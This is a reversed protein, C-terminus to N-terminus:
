EVPIDAAERVEVAKSLTVEMWAALSSSSTTQEASHLLFTIDTHVSVKSREIKFQVTVYNGLRTLVEDGVTSISVVVVCYKVPRDPM